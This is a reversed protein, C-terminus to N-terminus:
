PATRRARLRQGRRRSLRQLAARFEEGASRSVGSLDPGARLLRGAGDALRPWDGERAAAILGAVEPPVGSPWAYWPDHTLSWLLTLDKLARESFRSEGAPQVWLALLGLAPPATPIAAHSSVEGHLAADETDGDLGELRATWDALRAAPVASGNDRLHTVLLRGAELRASLDRRRSRLRELCARLECDASWCVTPIGGLRRLMLAAAEAAASWKGARAFEAVADAPETLDERGQSLWWVRDACVLRVEAPGPQRTSQLWALLLQTAGTMPAATEDALAEAFAHCQQRDEEHLSSLWQQGADLWAALSDAAPVARALRRCAALKFLGPFLEALLAFTDRLRTFADALRRDLPRDGLRHLLRHTAEYWEEFFAIPGPRSKKSPRNGSVTRHLLEDMGKRARRRHENTEADAGVTLQDLYRECEHLLLRLRALRAEKGFQTAKFWPFIKSLHDGTPSRNDALLRAVAAREAALEVASPRAVGRVALNRGAAWDIEDDALDFGNQAKRVVREEIPLGALADQLEAGAPAVRSLDAAEPVDDTSLAPGRRGARAMDRLENHTAMVLMHEISPYAVYDWLPVLHLLKAAAIAAFERASQCARPMRKLRFRELLQAEARPYEKDDDACLQIDFLAYRRLLEDWANVQQRWCLFGLVKEPTDPGIVAVPLLGQRQWLRELATGDRGLEWLRALLDNNMVAYDAAAPEPLDLRRALAALAVANDALTWLLALLRPDYTDYSGGAPPEPITRSRDTIKRNYRRAIEREADPDRRKLRDALPDPQGQAPPRLLRSFQTPM